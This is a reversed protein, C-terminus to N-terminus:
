APRSKMGAVRRAKRNGSFSCAYLGALGIAGLALTGPEPCFIISNGQFGSLLGTVMSVPTSPPNGAGGLVGTTFVASKGSILASAYDSGTRTDWVRVILQATSGGPVGPVVQSGASFRGNAAITMTGGLQIGFPSADNGSYTFVQVKYDPGKLPTGCFDIYSIMAGLNNQILVTGQGCAVSLTSFGLVAALLRAGLQTRIEM